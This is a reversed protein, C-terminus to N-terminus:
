DKVYGVEVEKKLSLFESTLVRSIKTTLINENVIWHM